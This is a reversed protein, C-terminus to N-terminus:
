RHPRSAAETIGELVTDVSGNRILDSVAEIEPGISRDAELPPVESRILAHLRGVGPGPMLPRRYELGQAAILMEIAIVATM